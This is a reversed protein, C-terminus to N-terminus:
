QAVAALIGKLFPVYVGNVGVKVGGAGTARSVPVVLLSLNYRAAGLHPNNFLAKDVFLM